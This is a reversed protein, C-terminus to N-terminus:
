TLPIAISTWTRGASATRWLRATDFEVIWGTTRTPFDLVPAFDYYSATIAGFRHSMTTRTWSHGADDTALLQNGHILIWSEPTRIDVAWRGAPGPPRVPQWSNGRDHSRYILTQQPQGLDFPVAGQGEADLVPIGSFQAGAGPAGGAPQVLTTTWNKGGDRTRYIPPTGAACATVAWGLTATTFGVDKDCSDPPSGSRNIQHWTTGGDNTGFLGVSDRGMTARDLVCWGHSPSIFDLACGPRPTYAHQTWHQGADGTSWLTQRAGDALGGATLWTHDPDLVFLATIRRARTQTLLGPPTVDSWTTGADRTLVVHESGRVADVATWAWVIDANVPWVAGVSERTPSGAAPTSAAQTTTARASIHPRTTSARTTGNGCAALMLAAAVAGCKAIASSM